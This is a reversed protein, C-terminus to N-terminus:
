RTTTHMEYACAYYFTPRAAQARRATTIDVYGSRLLAESLKSGLQFSDSKTGVAWHKYNIKIGFMDTDLQNGTALMVITPVTLAAHDGRLAAM